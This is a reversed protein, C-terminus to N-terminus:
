LVKGGHAYPRLKNYEHKADVAHDIDIGLSHALEVTRIIVDALENAIGIPKERVTYQVPEENRVSEAAEAVETTILMLKSMIDKPSLPEHSSFGHSCALIFTEHALQNLSIM